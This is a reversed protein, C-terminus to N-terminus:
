KALVGGVYWGLWFVMLSVFLSALSYLLSVGLNGRGFLAIEVVFSSWTTLAGMFGVILFLRLLEFPRDQLWGLLLGVLLCGLVNVIFTAVPWADHSREGTALIVAYRLAAGLAGGSMVAIFQWWLKPSELM